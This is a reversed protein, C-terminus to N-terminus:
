ERFLSIHKDSTDTFQEFVSQATQVKTFFLRRRRARYRRKTPGVVTRRNVNNKSPFIYSYRERQVRTFFFFLPFVTVVAFFFLTNVCCVVAILICRKRTLHCHFNGYEHTTPWNIPISKRSRFRQSKSERTKTNEHKRERSNGSYADEM